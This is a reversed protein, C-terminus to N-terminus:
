KGAAIPENVTPAPATAAVVKVGNDTKNVSQIMATPTVQRRKYEAVAFAVVAGGLTVLGTALAGQQDPTIYGRTSAWTAIATGAALGASTLYSKLQPDVAIM